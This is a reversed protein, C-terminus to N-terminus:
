LGKKKRRGSKWIRLGIRLRDSEKSLHDARKLAAVLMCFLVFVSYDSVCVDMGQAPNSGVIGANMNM